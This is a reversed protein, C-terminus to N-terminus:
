LVRYIELRVKRIKATNSLAKYDVDINKIGSTLIEHKFGSYLIYANNADVKAKVFECLTISDNIQVRIGTMRDKSTNAVEFSYGIRYTGATLSNTIMRLKQQYSAFSTTSETEDSAEDHESGFVLGIDAPTLNHPNGTTIQSHTYATNWHSVDTATVDSLETINHVTLDTLDTPKGTVGSWPVSTAAGATYVEYGNANGLNTDDIVYYLLGTDTQKVTDGNQVDNTTLLYRAAQDAVVVLRELSGHPLRAIDITGSTIRVADINQSLKGTGDLGAVGNAVGKQSNTIFDQWVGAEYIVYRGVDSNMAITGNPVNLASIQVATLPELILTSYKKVM